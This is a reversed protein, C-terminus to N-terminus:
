VVAEDHERNDDDQKEEADVERRSRKRQRGGQHQESNEEEDEEHNEVDEGDKEEEHDVDALDHQEATPPIIRARFPPRLDYGPLGLVDRLEQINIDIPVAVGNLHIHIRRTPENSEATAALLEERHQEAQRDVYNLQRFTENDSQVVPAGDPQRAQVSAWYEVSAPGPPERNESQLLESISKTAQAVRSATARHIPNTKKVRNVYLFLPIRKRKYEHQRANVTSKVYIAADAPWIAATDDVFLRIRCDTLPEGIKITVVADCLEPLTPLEATM